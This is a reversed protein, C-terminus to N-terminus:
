CSSFGGVHCLASWALWSIFPFLNKNSTRQKKRILNKLTQGRNRREVKESPFFLGKADGSIDGNLNIGQAPLKSKKGALSCAAM